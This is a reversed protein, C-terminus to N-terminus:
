QLLDPCQQLMEFAKQSFHVTEQAVFSTKVYDLLLKYM